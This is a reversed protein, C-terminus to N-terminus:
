SQGNLEKLLPITLSDTQLSFNFNRVELRNIFSFSSLSRIISQYKAIDAKFEAAATDTSSKYRAKLDIGDLRIKDLRRSFGAPILLDRLDYEASAETVKITLQGSCIRINKLYIRSFDIGAGEILLTDALM